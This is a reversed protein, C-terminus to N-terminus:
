IFGTVLRTNTSHNGVDLIISKNYEIIMKTLIVKNLNNKPWIRNQFEPEILILKDGLAARIMSEDDRWESTTTNVKDPIERDTLKLSYIQPGRSKYVVPRDRDGQETSM